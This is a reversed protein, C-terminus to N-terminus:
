GRQLKSFSGTIRNKFIGDHWGNSAHFHVNELSEKAKTVTRYMNTSCYYKGDVFLDIKKFM